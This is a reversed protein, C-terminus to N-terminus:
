NNLLAARERRSCRFFFTGNKEMTSKKENNKIAHRPMAHCQVDVFMWILFLM